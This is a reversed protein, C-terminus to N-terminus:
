AILVGKVVARQAEVSEDAVRLILRESTGLESKSM